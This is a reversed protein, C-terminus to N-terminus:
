RGTEPNDKVEARVRVVKSPLEKLDTEFRVHGHVIGRSTGSSLTLGFAKKQGPELVFPGTFDLSLLSPPKADASLIRVPEKGFNEIGIERVITENQPIKGFNVMRPTFKLAEVVKAKLTFTVLDKRPDNTRVRIQKHIEGTYARTSM